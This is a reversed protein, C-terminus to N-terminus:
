RVAPLAHEERGCTSGREDGFAAREYCTIQELSVERMPREGALYSHYWEATRRLTETIDWSPRWPLDWLAKDIALRLISAEHPANPDSADRWSGSGWAEFFVTVVDSM